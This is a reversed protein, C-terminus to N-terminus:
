PGRSCCGSLESKTSTPSNRGPWAGQEFKFLDSFVLKQRLPWEIRDFRELLAERFNSNTPLKFPTKTLQSSSSPISGGVWTEPAAHNRGVALALTTERAKTISAGGRGLWNLKRESWGRTCRSSFM